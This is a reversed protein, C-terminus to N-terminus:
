KTKKDSGTKELEIIREQLRNRLRDGREKNYLVDDKLEQHQTQQHLFTNYITTLSFTMSIVTAIIFVVTKIGIHSKEIEM